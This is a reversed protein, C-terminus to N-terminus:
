TQDADQVQVKIYPQAQLEVHPVVHHQVSTPQHHVQPQHDPHSQAPMHSHQQPQHQTHTQSQTQIPSHAEHEANAITKHSVQSQHKSKKSQKPKRMSVLTYFYAILLVLMSAAWGLISIKFVLNERIEVQVLSRGSFVFYNNASVSVSAIRLVSYPQWTIANYPVKASAELSGFPANNALAGDFYGNGAVVNGSKDYITVFPLLSNNIDVKGSVVDSPQQGANLATAADEALQIQPDNADQRLIQQTATYITGFIITIIIAGCFWLFTHNSKKEM